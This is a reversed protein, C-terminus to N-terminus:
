IDWISIKDGSVSAIRKDKLLLVTLIKSEGCHIKNICEYSALNLIKIDGRSCSFAFYGNPLLMFCKVISDICITRVCYFDNVIDWVRITKDFSGSLLLNEKEIVLLSTVVYCHGKLNKVFKIDDDEFTWIKIIKRVEIATALKNGPLNALASVRYDHNNFEKCEYNNNYDILTISFPFGEEYDVFSYCILKGSTLLFAKYVWSKIFIKKICNFDDKVDLFKIEGIPTSTVIVDNPLLIIFNYYQTEPITKICQKGNVDWINISNFCSSILNGDPLMAISRIDRSDENNLIKRSNGITKFINKYSLLRILINSIIKNKTTPILDRTTSLKISSFILKLINENELKIM